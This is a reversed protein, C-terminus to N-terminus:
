CLHFMNLCITIYSLPGWRTYRSELLWGRQTPRWKFTGFSILCKPIETSTQTLETKRSLGFTGLNVSQFELKSAAFALSQAINKSALPVKSHFHNLFVLIRFRLNSPTSRSAGMKMIKMRMQM